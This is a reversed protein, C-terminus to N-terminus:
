TMDPDALLAALIEPDDPLAELRADARERAETVDPDVDLPGAGSDARDLCREYLEDVAGRYDAVALATDIATALASEDDHTVVSDYPRFPLTPHTDDDTLYVIPVRPDWSDDSRLWEVLDDADDITPRHIVVVPARHAPSRADGATTVTTVAADTLATSVAAPPEDAVLLIM